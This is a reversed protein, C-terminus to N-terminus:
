KLIRLNHSEYKSNKVYDWISADGIDFKYTDVLDLAKYNITNKNLIM